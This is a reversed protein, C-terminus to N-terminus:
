LPTLTGPGVKGLPLDSFADQEKRTLLCAALCDPAPDIQVRDAEAQILQIAIKCFIDADGYEEFAEAARQLSTQKDDDFGKGEGNPNAGRALLARVVDPEDWACYWILPGVLGRVNPDMGAELVALVADSHGKCNADEAPCLSNRDYLSPNAGARILYRAIAWDNRDSEDQKVICRALPNCNYDGQFDIDAGAEVLAKVISLANDGDERSAAQLPLDDDETIGWVDAPVGSALLERVKVVDLAAVAVYMQQALEDQNDESFRVQMDNAGHYLHAAKLANKDYHGLCVWDAAAAVPTARDLGVISSNVVRVYAHVNVPDPDSLFFVM